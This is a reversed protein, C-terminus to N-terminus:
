RFAAVHARAWEAFTRAPRGTVQRVTPLVETGLDDMLSRRMAAEVVDAPMGMRLMGDYAAEPPLAILELSRGLTEGLIELEQAPSLADPGSLEYVKEAHGSESLAHAAVAAIDSPDISAARRAAFPIRVKGDRRVMPAWQLANSMFRGPRLITWAAGCERIAAEARAHWLSIPDGDHGGGSGGKLVSLKVIHRVGAARSADAVVMDHTPSATSGVIQASMLFVRDVGALAAEVSARDGLDGRVVEVGEPFGAEGPRRTM